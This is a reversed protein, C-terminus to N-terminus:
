FNAVTSPNLPCVPHADTLDFPLDSTQSMLYKRNSISLPLQSRQLQGFAMQSLTCM